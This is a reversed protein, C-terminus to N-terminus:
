KRKIYRNLVPAVLYSVALVAIWYHQGFFARILDPSIFAAILIFISLLATTLAGAYLVRDWHNM